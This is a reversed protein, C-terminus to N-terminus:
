SHVCIGGLYTEIVKIASLRKKDVKFPDESLLIFDARKGAELSGVDHSQGLIFAAESTYMAIAEKVSVAEEKQLVETEGTRRTVAREIGDFPNCSVVPWDSGGAVRIGNDILTRLPLQRIGPLPPVNESGMHSLFEPQTVVAIKHERIKQICSDTLFLAHEIRPPPTKKHHIGAAKMMDAAQEVAENGIAHFVLTYGNKIAASIFAQGKKEPVMMVGFHLNFGSKLVFPSRMMLKLPELSLKKVSRLISGWLSKLAQVASIKVAARDAGDLFVKVPGNMIIDSQSEEFPKEIKSEPLAFMNADDCPYHVVPIKLIRNELAKEYFTRTISSVAPDGIRTVGYSFLLKQVKDIREMIEEESFDIVSERLQSVAEGASMEILRGTPTGNKDKVIEGAYPQPTDADIGLLELAKSNVVCEHVSYHFFVVPQNPCIEDLDYRNPSRKEALATPDYGQGGIWKEKPTNEAFEALKRKMTVIDPANEPTLDITGQLMAGDFFHIHSDTFGPLVAANKGDTESEFRYQRSLADRDGTAVIRDNEWVLANCVSFRDDMTYINVNYLLNM